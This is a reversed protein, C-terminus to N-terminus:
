GREDSKPARVRRLATVRDTLAAHGLVHARADVAALTEDSVLPAQPGTLLSELESTRGAELLALVLAHAARSSPERTFSEQLPRVALDAMGSDLLLQGVSGVDHPVDEDSAVTRSSSRAREPGPEPAGAAAPKRGLLADLPIAGETSGERALPRRPPTIPKLRAERQRQLLRRGNSFGLMLALVGMWVTRTIIAGVVLAVATLVGLVQLAREHRYGARHRVLSAVFDGGDLPRVPLLNFLGWGANAWLLQQLLAGGLGPQEGPSALGSAWWALGGVLLSAAPGALSVWASQRHTLRDSGRTTGGLEHLTISAPSGFRRLAWAHALEHLLVSVFVVPLWMALRGPEAAFDWGTALATLFFLPQLHVPTRAVHFLPKM